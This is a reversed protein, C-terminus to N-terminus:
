GGLATFIGLAREVMATRLSTDKLAASPAISVGFLGKNAILQLLKQLDALLWTM